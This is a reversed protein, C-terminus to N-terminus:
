KPSTQCLVEEEGGHRGHRLVGVENFEDDSSAYIMSGDDLIICPIAEGDEILYGAQTIRRGVVRAIFGELIKPMAAGALSAAAKEPTSVFM